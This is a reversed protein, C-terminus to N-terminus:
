NNASQTVILMNRVVSRISFHVCVVLKTSPFADANYGHLSKRLTSIYPLIKVEYVNDYAKLQVGIQM